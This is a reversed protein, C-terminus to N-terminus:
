QTPDSGKGVRMQHPLICQQVPQRHRALALVYLRVSLNVSVNVGVSLESNREGSKCTKPSHSSVLPAASFVNLCVSLMCVGLSVGLCVFIFCIRM